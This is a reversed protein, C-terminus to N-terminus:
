VKPPPLKRALKACHGALSALKDQEGVRVLGSASATAPMRFGLRLELKRVGAEAKCQAGAAPWAARCLPWGAATTVHRGQRRLTYRTAGCVHPRDANEPHGTSRCCGAYVCCLGGRGVHIHLGPGPQGGCVGKGPDVETPGQSGQYANVCLGLSSPDRSFRGRYTSALHSVGPM